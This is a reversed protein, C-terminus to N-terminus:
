KGRYIMEKNSLKTVVEAYLSDLLIPNQKYFEFSTLFQTHTTQYKDFIFNRYNVTAVKMSDQNGSKNSMALADAIHLETIIDSMESQTLMDSGPKPQKPACAFLLLLLSLYTYKQV